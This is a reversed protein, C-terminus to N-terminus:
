EFPVEVSVEGSKESERFFRDVSRVYFTMKRGPKLGSVINFYTEHTSGNRKDLLLQQTYVSYTEAQDAPNWKLCVNEHSYEATLNPPAQPLPKTTISVMKSPESLLGKNDIKIYYYYVTGDKLNKDTYESQDPDLSVIKKPNNIDDESRYINIKAPQSLNYGVSWTIEAERVSDDKVSISDISRPIERTIASVTESAQSEKYCFDFSKVYYFYEKGNDLNTDTYSNNDRGNLTRIQEFGSIRKTSRYINYGSVSGLNPTDWSLPVSKKEGAGAKLNAPISSFDFTSKSLSIGNNLIAKYEDSRSWEEIEAARMVPFPHTRLLNLSIKLATGSLGAAMERYQKSQELFDNYDIQEAIKRTGGALKMLVHIVPKIDQTALLSARDASLEAKRKWELLGLSMTTNTIIKLPGLITAGMQLFTAAMHYLVHGCKIHGMEHAIVSLLEEDDVSDILGSFIQIMPSYTGTTLASVFPNQSIFVEPIPMHLIKACLEVKDYVSRCTKKTVKVCDGMSQIRFIKEFSARNMTNILTDLGKLKQVASLANADTPHSFSKDNLQPFVLKNKM